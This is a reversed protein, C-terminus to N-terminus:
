VRSPRVFAIVVGEREISARPNRGVRESAAALVEDEAERIVGPWHTPARGNITEFARGFVTEAAVAAEAVSAAALLASVLAKKRAALEAEAAALAARAAAQRQQEEEARVAQEAEALAAAAVRRQRQLADRAPVIAALGAAHDDGDRLNRISEALAQDLRAEEASLEEARRDITALKARLGAVRERLGPLPDEVTPADASARRFSPASM